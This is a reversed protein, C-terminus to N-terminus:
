KVPKIKSICDWSHNNIRANLSSRGRTTAVILNPTHASPSRGKEPLNVIEPYPPYILLLSSPLLSLGLELLLLLPPPLSLLLV